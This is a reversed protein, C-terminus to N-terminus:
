TLRWTGDMGESAPAFLAAATRRASSLKERNLDTLMRRRDEDGILGLIGKVWAAPELPAVMGLAEEDPNVQFVLPDSVMLAAGCRAADIRKVDARAANARGPHLPALLLDRGHAATDARYAPWDRYPIVRIRPEGRWLRDRGPDAVVEFDVGPHAALVAGVVPALWRQDAGHSSTAHSAILPRPPRVPASALDAEGPLPPTLRPTPAGAKQAWLSELPSTSVWLGELLPTLRPWLTMGHRRLKWRYRWRLNRDAALAEMDDDIFLGVGALEGGHALVTRLWSESAYRCFLM